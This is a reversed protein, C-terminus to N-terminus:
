DFDLIDHGARHSVYCWDHCFYAPAYTWPDLNPLMWAFRPVSGADTQMAGPTVVVGWSTTYSFPDAQVVFDYDRPARWYVLPLGHFAGLQMWPPRFSVSPM